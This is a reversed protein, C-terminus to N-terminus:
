QVGFDKAEFRLGVSGTSRDVQEGLDRFTAVTGVPSSAQVTSNKFLPYYGIRARTAGPNVRCNCPVANVLGANVIVGLPEATANTILPAFVATESSGADVLHPMEGGPEQETISGQVEVGLPANGPGVPRVLYWHVVLPGKRGVPIRSEGNAPVEVTQNEVVLRIPEVLRNTIILVPSGQLAFWAGGAGGLVLLLVLPLLWRRPRAAATTIETPASPSAGSTRPAPARGSARPGSVVPAAGSLTRAREATSMLETRMESKVRQAVREASVAETAGSERGVNIADLLMAASQYREAPRKELCRVIVESLWMPIRANVATAIPAPESLHKGVIEQSSEGEFPPTGTVMQYLVAGVAYLDSRADLDGQGLAQEPSMYQPTGVVFGAQTQHGAGDLRKAIGFDVLLPRGTSAELMINDPKIDRHILGQGHAHALADLLPRVIGIARDVPLAGQRLLSTLTEGEVFPMAYYVLGEGEGVFHIALINPHTLRALSRCEQRFRELMGASWAIDPKLVKVALRRQLDTDWVEYVHAFGGEGLLRRVEYKPGLARALRGPVDDGAGAEVRSDGRGTRTGCQPCFLASEIVQAQCTPCPITTM